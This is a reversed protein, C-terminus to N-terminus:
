LSGPQRSLTVIIDITTSAIVTTPPGSVATSTPVSAISTTVTSATAAQNSTTPTATTSTETGSTSAVVTTASQGANTTTTPGSAPREITLTVTEGAAHASVVNRLTEPESLLLGDISVIVDGVELGAAAAPGGALVETVTVRGTPDTEATIGLWAPAGNSTASRLAELLTAVTVLHVGTASKTCMGILRNSGDLVLMGEGTATGYEYGVQTGSDDVWLSASTAEPTMVMFGGDSLAAGSAEILSQDIDTTVSLVATGNAVDIAVVAGVVTEGSPLQVVFRERGRVAAATTVVYHGPILAVVVPPIEESFGGDNALVMTPAPPLEAVTTTSAPSVVAETISPLDFTGTAAMTIATTEAATRPVATTNGQSATRVSTTSVEIAVDPSPGPYPLMLWLLGVALVVGVTGTAFLLGRGVVLPPESRVWQAAGM